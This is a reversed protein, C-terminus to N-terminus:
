TMATAQTWYVDAQYNHATKSEGVSCYTVGASGLMSLQFVSFTVLTFRFLADLCYAAIYKSDYASGKKKSTLYHLRICPEIFMGVTFNIINLILGLTFSIQFAM